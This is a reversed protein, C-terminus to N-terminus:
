IFNNIIKTEKQTQKEFIKLSHTNEKYDFISIFPISLHRKCMTKQENKSKKKKLARGVAYPLHWAPFRIPAAAAPRRAMDAVEM